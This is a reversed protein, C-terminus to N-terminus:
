RRSLYSSSFSLQNYHILLNTSFFHDNRIFCYTNRHWPYSHFLPHPQLFWRGATKLSSTLARLTRPTSSSPPPSPPTGAQPDGLLLLTLSPTLSPRVEVAKRTSSQPSCWAEPSLRAQVCRLEQRGMYLLVMSSLSDDEREWPTVQWLAM